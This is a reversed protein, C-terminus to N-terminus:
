LIIYFESFSDTNLKNFLTASELKKNEHLFNAKRKQGKKLKSM